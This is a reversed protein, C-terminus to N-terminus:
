ACGSRPRRAGFRRRFWPSSLDDALKQSQRKTPCFIITHGRGESQLIRAVIEPKDVPHTRYAHQTVRKVLQSNDEDPDIARIHTPQNM